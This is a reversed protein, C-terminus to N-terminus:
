DKQIEEIKLEEKEIKDKYDKNLQKINEEYQNYEQKLLDIKSSLSDRKLINFIFTKNLEIQTNNIDNEIRIKEQKLEKLKNYKEEKIKEIKKNLEIIKNIKEQHKEKEKQIIDIIENIERYFNNIEKILEKNLNISRLSIYNSINLEELKPVKDQTITLRMLDDYYDEDYNEKIEKIFNKLFLILNNYTEEQLNLNYKHTELINKNKIPKYKINILNDYLNKLENIKNKM